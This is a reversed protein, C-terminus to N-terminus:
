KKKFKPFAFKKKATTKKPPKSAAVTDTWFEDSIDSTEWEEKEQFIIKLVTVPFKVLLDMFEKDVKLDKAMRLIRVGADTNMEMTDSRFRSNAGDGREGPKDYNITRYFKLLLLALALEQKPTLAM